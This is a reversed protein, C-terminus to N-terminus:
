IISNVRGELFTFLFFHPYQFFMNMGNSMGNLSPRSGFQKERWSTSGSAPGHGGPGPQYLSDSLIAEEQQAPPGPQPLQPRWGGKPLNNTSNQQQQSRYINETETSLNLQLKDMTTNQSSSNLSNPSTPGNPVMPPMPPPPAGTM